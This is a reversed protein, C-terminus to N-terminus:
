GRHVVNRADELAPVLNQTGLHAAFGSREILSAPQQQLGCLILRGDRKRILGHLTRLAEVGTTDLNLLGSMELVTFQPRERKPDLLGELKSVTGFFLSGNIRFAEVSRHPLGELDGESEEIPEVRTLSSVRTIFFMCALALGVEVAATLDIAVTLAFTVLLIIRYNNSFNKLRAFEHWEGMSYALFLLIAALAAMPINVALPAAIWIIVLLAVAHVIGAVPSTAGFRVNTVTRAINGTACFGGFLPATCNAVGQAMLEQNPDHRDDIMSDAVRACLLSEIAGLLAITLTPAFLQKVTGWEFEPFAFGPLASPIGGFRSGITAVELNLTTVALAGAVLAVITGPVRSMVRYPLSRSEAYTKPWLAVIALCVASLAVTAPDFTNRERWFMQLRAFFDAPINEVKLGLFDKVQSLAILM